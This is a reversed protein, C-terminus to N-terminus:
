WERAHRCVQPCGPPDPRDLHRAAENQGGHRADAHLCKAPLAATESSSEDARLHHAAGTQLVLVLPREAIQEDGGVLVREGDLDEPRLGGHHGLRRAHDFGGAGVDDVDVKAAGHPLHRLRAGSRGQELIGLPRAADDRGDRVGHGDRHGHLHASPELVAGAGAELDAWAEDLGARLPEGQM